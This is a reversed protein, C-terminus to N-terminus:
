SRAHPPSRSASAPGRRRRARAAALRDGLPARRSLQRSGEERRRATVKAIRMRGAKSTPEVTRGIALAWGYRRALNAQNDSDYIYDALLAKKARELEAATVGNKRVEDLVGDVAGRGQRPRRRRGAVAYLSITGGDLGYGRTTAARPRRSRTRSSSSATSAARRATPSRDEDAPRASRGRRAEATVYSPALYYRHFSANGARPDKLTSAARRSTRRSRRARARRRSRSQGPDQRLDGRCARKVEEATVDGAVVLIANNPAYYRKYFRLADERSLKAM